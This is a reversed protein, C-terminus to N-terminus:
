GLCIFLCTNTSVEENQSYMAKKSSFPSPESTPLESCAGNLSDYSDPHEDELLSNIKEPYTKVVLRSHLM